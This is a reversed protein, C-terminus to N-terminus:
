GKLRDIYGLYGMKKKKLPTGTKIEEPSQVKQPFFGKKM